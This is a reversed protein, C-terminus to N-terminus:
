RHPLRYCIVVLHDLGGSVAGDDDDDDAAAAASAAAAAFNMGCDVYRHGDTNCHEVCNIRWQVDSLRDAAPSGTRARLPQERRQCTLLLLM